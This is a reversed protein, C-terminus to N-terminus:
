LSFLTTFGGRSGPVEAMGEDVIGKKLVMARNEEFIGLETGGGAFYCIAGAHEGDLLAWSTGDVASCSGEFTGVEKAVGDVLLTVKTQPITAKEGMDKFQWTYAHGQLKGAPKPTDQSAFLTGNVVKLRLTVGVSPKTAMPEGDKRDAYNVVVTDGQIETTQPAIRDGLLIGNTGTYGADTKLAVVAYVFTGTGGGNQTLIFAIDEKGDGNLDGRAENGFYKTTTKYAADGQDGEQVESLGNVLTVPADQIIYTANKYDVAQVAPVPQINQPGKQALFFYWIAGALVLLVVLLTLKKM